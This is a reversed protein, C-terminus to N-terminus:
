VVSKRDRFWVASVDFWSRSTAQPLAVHIPMPEEAPWGARMKITISRFQALEARCIACTREHESCASDQQPTLEGSLREFILDRFENCLM